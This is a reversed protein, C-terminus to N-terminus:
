VRGAKAKLVVICLSVSVLPAAPMAMATAVTAQQIAATATSTIAEEISTLITSTLTARLLTNTYTEEWIM